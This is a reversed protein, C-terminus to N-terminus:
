YINNKTHLNFCQVLIIAQSGVFCCKSPAQFGSYWKQVLLKDINCHTNIRLIFHYTHILSHSKAATDSLFNVSNM